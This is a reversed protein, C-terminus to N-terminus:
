VKLDVFFGPFFASSSSATIKSNIQCLTNDSDTLLGLKLGQM